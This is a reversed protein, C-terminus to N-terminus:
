DVARLRRGRGVWALVLLLGAAATFLRPSGAELARGTVGMFDLTAEGSVLGLQRLVLHVADAVGLFDTAAVGNVPGLYWLTLYIGHFTKEKGTWAGLGLALAPVFLAGVGAALLSPGDGAHAMRALPGAAALLSVGVGAAFQAPLQRLRPSPGSFLLEETGDRRERCGLASWASLPLLWAVLLLSAASEAPVFLAAVNTGILGVYWWWAHGHLLLRLEAWATRLFSLVAGGRGPPPLESVAARPAVGSATEAAPAAVLEDGDSALPPSLAAGGPTKGPLRGEARGDEGEESVAVLGSRDRFPDFIRLSLAAVGTLGGGVGVWYLRRALREATWGLGKWPFRLSDPRAVDELSITLGTAPAGPHEALLGERLGEFVLNLGTVDVWASGADVDAFSLMGVWVFFYAVNGAVGRLWPVGDFLVAMGAVAALCSGTILLSPSAVRWVGAASIGGARATEIGVAFGALVLLMASLVAANSLFKSVAYQLRTVATAALIPGVGTRLDRDITGRVVYFAALSLFGSTPVAVLTGTWGPGAEPLASGVTVTWVDAQVTYALGAAAALTLLFAPRRARELFDGRALELVTRLPTLQVERDPHAM